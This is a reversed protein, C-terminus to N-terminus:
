EPAAEMRMRFHWRSSSGSVPSAKFTARFLGDGLPSIADLDVPVGGQLWAGQLLDSRYELTHLVGGARYGTEFAGTGNGRLPYHLLLDPGSRGGTLEAFVGADRPDTAASFEGLNDLGDGDPDAGNGSVLPDALEAPTFRSVRWRFLAGENQYVYAVEQPSFARPWIRVLDISGPFWNPWTAGLTGDTAVATPLGSDINGIGSIDRSAARTGDFYLDAMGDRDHSVLLHHWTGDNLQAAPGDYDARGSGDGINWQWHGDGAGAILWGPNAGSTWDKNSIVAPDSASGGIGRNDPFASTTKVWVSVTFDKSSGFNFDPDSGLDIYQHPTAPDSFALVQGEVGSEYVPTGSLTGHHNQGSTDQVNGNLDLRLLLNAYLAGRYFAAEAVLATCANTGGSVRVEYDVISLGNSSVPPQDLYSSSGTPLTDLLFGDRWIELHDASTDGDAGWQLLSLSGLTDVQLSHPCPSPLGFASDEWGWSPDVPIGLWGLATPPIASHGPGPSVEPAVTAGSAIIFITREDVSQGGHSFGLGGHDTTVLVLWEESAHNPRATLASLVTGIHTDVGEIAALYAPVATSYGSAHGAHDVDDFHLFLLDPDTNGLHTAAESAVLADTGVDRRFDVSDAVAQVISSDIPSWHIISSQYATPYLDKVRKYFHPYDGFNNGSFSNDSVGHKDRWVGTLISSWGPGSSTAQQSAQGLEGGAFADYSVVGDAILGDLNPTNAARIADSRAGDIGIILVRRAGFPNPNDPALISGLAEGHLRGADYIEDIEALSLPRSWISLDDLIGVHDRPSAGTGDEGLNLAKGAPTAFNGLSAIGAVDSIVTGAKGLYLTATNLGRDVVLAGLHWENFNIDRPGPDVRGSGDGLNAGHEDGNGSDNLSINFGPSNGSTWDKNSIMAPDGFQDRPGNFWYVISFSSTVSFDLTTEAVTLYENSTSGDNIPGTGGFADHAAKNFFVANGFSGPVPVPQGQGISVHNANGTLDDYGATANTTDFPHYAELGSPDIAPFASLSIGWVIAIVARTSTSM